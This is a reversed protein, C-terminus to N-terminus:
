AEARGTGRRLVVLKGVAATRAFEAARELESVVRAPGLRPDTADDFAVHADPALHARWCAFDRAVSEYAHDGDIWLLAVPTTWAGRVQESSLNVLRVERYCGTELMTRYFAARDQPGFRGGLVGIFPEHPEFAYVPRGAGARTGLALAVTSRGRYSGVEVICGDRAARALAYLLAAEERALWGEVREVVDLDEAPVDDPIM